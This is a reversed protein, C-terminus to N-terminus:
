WYKEDLNIPAKVLQVGGTPPSYYNESICIGVKKWGLGYRHYHTM